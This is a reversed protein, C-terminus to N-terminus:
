AQKIVARPIDIYFVRCKLCYEFEVEDPLKGFEVLISKIDMKKRCKECLTM